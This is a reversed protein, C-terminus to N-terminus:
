MKQSTHYTVGDMYTVPITTNLANPDQKSDALYFRASKDSPVTIKDGPETVTYNGHVYPPFEQGSKVADLPFRNHVNTVTERVWSAQKYVVWRGFNTGLLDRHFFRFYPHNLEGPPHVGRERPGTTIGFHVKQMATGDLTGDGLAIALKDDEDGYDLQKFRERIITM